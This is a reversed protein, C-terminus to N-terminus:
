KATARLASCFSRLTARSRSESVRSLLVLDSPPLPPLSLRESVDIAGSPACRRALAAVALGASVAAGVTAVGGGVFVETWPIGAADLVQAASARLGCPGSQSAIRLPEGTPAPWDVSAFWGFREQLLVEGDRRANDHRLIVAADLEADDFAKLVENSPSVRLEIVLEPEYESMRRLLLPLEPGVVHVSIGIVLRRREARFTAFAREHAGVFDRAAPLFAAGEPSLRVLRPTREILRRGLKEELRKLKLSVASQTSGMAEAARTFSKLDAVFVFAQVSEPDLTKMVAM